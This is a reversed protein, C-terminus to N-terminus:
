EGRRRQLPTFSCDPKVTEFIRALGEISCLVVWEPSVFEMAIRALMHESIGATRDGGPAGIHLPYFEDDLDFKASYGKDLAIQCLM